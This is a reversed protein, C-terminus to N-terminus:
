YGASASCQPRYVGPRGGAALKRRFDLLVMLNNPDITRLQVLLGRGLGAEPCAPDTLHLVGKLVVHTESCSAAM